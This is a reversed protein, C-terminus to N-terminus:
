RFDRWFGKPIHFQLKGNMLHGFISQLQMLVKKHTDKRDTDSPSPLPDDCPELLQPPSLRFPCTWSTIDIFLRVKYLFCVIINIIIIYHLSLETSYMRCLRLTMCTHMCVSVHMYCRYSALEQSSFGKGGWCVSAVIVVPHINM